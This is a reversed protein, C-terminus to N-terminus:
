NVPQEQLNWNDTQRPKWINKLPKEPSNSHRDKQKKFDKEINNKYTM